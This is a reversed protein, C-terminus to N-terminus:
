RYVEARSGAHDVHAALMILVIVIVSFKDTSPVLKASVAAIRIQEKLDKGRKESAFDYLECLSAPSNVTVLAGTSLTLWVDNKAGNKEATSSIKNFLGQFAPRPPAPIASGLAHPAAILAKLSESLRVSSAATKASMTAFKSPENPYLYSTKALALAEYLILKSTYSTSTPM